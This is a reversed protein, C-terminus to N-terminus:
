AKLKKKKSAKRIVLIVVVVVVAVGALLVVGAVAAVIIGVVGFGAIWSWLATFPEGFNSPNFSDINGIDGDESIPVVQFDDFFLEVGPTTRFMLYPGNATVTIRYQKWEGGKLDTFELGTESGVVEDHVDAYNSHIVEISGAAGDEKATMWFNIDYTTGVELKTEYGLLFMPAEASDPLTHLSRLGGHIYKPNYGKVGPQFYECGENIDYEVSNNGEFGNTFGVQVWKAFAYCNYNPFVELAFELDCSDYHYWGDFKYGYREPVPFEDYPVETVMPYGWVPDHKSGGDGTVFEISVKMPERMNSYKEANPFGRLVPTGGTTGATVIKWVKNYDLGPMNEKAREGQMYFLNLGVGGAQSAAGDVYTNIYQATAESFKPGTGFTDRDTTAVYCNEVIVYSENNEWLDGFLGAGRYTYNLTPCAYCNLFKCGAAGGGLIGGPTDATITVDPAVFCEEFLPVNDMVGDWGGGMYGDFNAIGAVIAAAYTHSMSLANNTITSSAVGLRKISAGRGINSMLATYNGDTQNFYLGTVVHYGGDLHGSFTPTGGFWEKANQEWGPKSTDNLKLDATIKYYKSNNSSAIATTVFYALQEPTEILYPDEETGTGGAFKTAIHGSWVRGKVGEDVEYPFTGEAVVKLQPTKGNATYWVDGWKLDKMATKAATGYMNAKPVATFSAGSIDSYNAGTMGSVGGRTPVNGITYTNMINSKCSWTDGMMGNSRQGPANGKVDATAYSFYINVGAPFATGVLGGVTFGRLTVSEDVSCGIIEVNENANGATHGVIGGVNGRGSIYSNRIHVNRIVAGSSAYPFLGAGTGGIYDSGCDTAPPTENVYLGYVSYGNGELHGSFASGSLNTPWVQANTKWNAKSTDNVYIDNALKYYKGKTTTSSVLYKLQAANEIIYPDKATGKGSSYVEADASTDIDVGNVKDGFVRLTPSGDKNTKWVSEFDFGKFYKDAGEGYMLDRNIVSWFNHENDAGGVNSYVNKFGDAANKGPKAETIDTVWNKVTEDYKTTYKWYQTSRGGHGNAYYPREAITYSNYIEYSTVWPNGILGNIKVSENIIDVKTYCDRIVLGKTSQWNNQQALGVLAGTCAGGAVEVTEDVFCREITIVDKAWGILAGVGNASTSNIKGYRIGLNTISGSIMRPILGVDGSTTAPYYLGYVIHGAGDIHGSFEKNVFWSNLDDKTFWGKVNIDNVYMDKALKYYKGGGGINLALALEGTTALVIPDDKTGKSTNDSFTEAVIGKWIGNADEDSEPVYEEGDNGEPNESFIDLIPYKDTAQWAKDKNLGQMPKGNNFVTLGQMDESSVITAESKEPIEATSIGYNNSVIAVKGSSSVPGTANYSNTVSSNNSGAGWFDGYLGVYGARDELVGTQWHPWKHTNRILTAWNYVHDLNFGKDSVGVFAGSAYGSLTVNEGVYCYSITTNNAGTNNAVFAAVAHKYEVYADDVGLNKIVADGKVHSFLGIGSNDSKKAETNKYFLGHVVHGDGDFTGAFGGSFIWSNIKYGDIAEGTKWNVKEVDNIFIDNALKYFKGETATQNLSIVYALEAANYILYPNAETGAGETPATKTTGDWVGAEPAPKVPAFATLIPYGTTGQFMAGLGSMKGTTVVDLGQMEAQTLVTEGAKNNEGSSVTAYNNTYIKVWQGKSFIPGNANYCNSITSHQPGANDNYKYADGILGKAGQSKLTAHSYCNTLHWTKDGVAYFVGANNGELTVNAGAYCQDYSVSDTYNSISATFAAAGNPHRVYAYDVGLKLVSLGSAKAFLGAGNASWSFNGPTNSYLGYVKHGDGDITGNLVGCTSSTFWSKAVYGSKATGTAWDIQTIDNLYIDKTLKYYAGAATGNKVIYALEEPTSILIPDTATGAGESPQVLEGSWYETPDMRNFIMLTPSEETTAWVTDFDLGSLTAKASEGKISDASVVTCTYKTSAPTGLSYVDTFNQAGSGNSGDFPSFSTIADTVTIATNWATGILAGNHGAKGVTFPNGGNTLPNTTTFTHGEHKLTAYTAVNTMKISSIAYAVVTSAGCSQFGDGSTKGYVPWADQGAAAKDIHAQTTYKNGANYAWVTVDKDVVVNEVVVNTSYGLVGATWRGGSIFSNKLRLNKVTAGNAVPILAAATNADGPKYYLGYVTFGAGNLTGKFIKNDAYSAGDQNYSGFWTNPTYDGNIQGTSWNVMSLDNLYIDNALVYHLGAGGGNAVVYALNQATEIVFPDAETGTGKVPPKQTGDWVKDNNESPTTNFVRLVPHTSTVMYTNDWDLAPMGSKATEGGYIVDISVSTGANSNWATVYNDTDGKNVITGAVNGIGFCGSFVASNGYWGIFGARAYSDKATHVSWSLLSYCNTVSVGIGHNINNGGDKDVGHGAIFGVFAGILHVTDSAYSRTVKITSSDSNGCFAGILAGVYGSQNANADTCANTISLYAKEVGVADITAGGAVLPFLGTAISHDLETTNHSTTQEVFLGFVKHGAGNFHGAFANGAGQTLDITLWENLNAAEYWKDGDVPNLYIDNALKYYKGKTAEAGLTILYKLQAGDEIVFPDDEAGTGSAFSTAVTGDWAAAGVFVAAMGSFTTLLVSFALLTAVFSSALKSRKLTKMLKSM